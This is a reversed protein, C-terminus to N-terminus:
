PKAKRNILTAIAELWIAEERDKNFWRSITDRQITGGGKGELNYAFCFSKLGEIISDRRIYTGADYGDVILRIAERHWLIRAESAKLKNKERGLQRGRERDEATWISAKLQAHIKQAEPGQQDLDVAQALQDLMEAQDPKREKLVAASM